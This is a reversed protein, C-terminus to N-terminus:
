FRLRVKHDVLFVENEADNAKRVQGLIEGLTSSEGVSAEHLLEQMKQYVAFVAHERVEVLKTSIFREVLYGEQYCLVVLSANEVAARQLLKTLERTACHFCTEEHSSTSYKQFLSDLQAVPEADDTTQEYVELIDATVLDLKSQEFGLHILHEVRSPLKPRMLQFAVQPPVGSAQTEYLSKASAQVAASGTEMIEELPAFLGKALIGRHYPQFFELIEKTSLEKMM